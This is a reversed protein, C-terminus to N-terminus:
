KRKITLNNQKYHYRKFCEMVEHEQWELLDYKKQMSEIEIRLESGFNEVTM